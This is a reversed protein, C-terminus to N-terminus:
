GEKIIAQRLVYKRLRLKWNWCLPSISIPGEFTIKKFIIKGKRIMLAERRLVQGRCDPIEGEGWYNV